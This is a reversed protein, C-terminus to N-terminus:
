PQARVENEAGAAPRRSYASKPGISLADASLVPAVGPGGADRKRGMHAAGGGEGEGGRAPSGGAHQPGAGMASQLAQGSHTSHLGSLGSAGTQLATHVSSTSQLLSPPPLGHSAMISDLESSSAVPGNPPSKLAPTGPPVASSPATSHVSGTSGQAPM